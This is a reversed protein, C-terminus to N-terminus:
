VPSKKVEDEETGTEKVLEPGLPVEVVIECGKGPSSYIRFAGKMLRAREEMNRLGMHRGSVPV